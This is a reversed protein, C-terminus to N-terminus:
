ATPDDGGDLAEEELVDGATNAEEAEMEKDVAEFDLSDLDVGPIHKVLYRRLLEYGKFYWILLVDNYQNTLQFAQVAEDGATSAECKTVQLQEGQQEMLLKEVKLENTLTKIHEKMQNGGDMAVILEKGLTSGKAELANVKSNAM